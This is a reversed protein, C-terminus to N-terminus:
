IELLLNKTLLFRIDGTPNYSKGQNRERIIDKFGFDSQMGIFLVGNTKLAHVLVSIMKFFEHKNQAFHLVSLCLIFDFVNNGLNNKEIAMVNIQSQNFDPNLNGAVFRAM